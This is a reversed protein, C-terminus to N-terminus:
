QTAKVMEILELKESENLSKIINEIMVLWNAETQNNLYDSAIQYREIYNM